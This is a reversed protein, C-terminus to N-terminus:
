RSVRQETTFASAVSHLWHRLNVKLHILNQIFYFLSVDLLSLTFCSTSLLAKCLQQTGDCQDPLGSSNDIVVCVGVSCPNLWRHCKSYTEVSDSQVCFLLRCDM